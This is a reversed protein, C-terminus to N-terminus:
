DVLKAHGFMEPNMYCTGTDDAWSMTGAREGSASADNIQLELGIETGVEPTIDTWKMAAEVIYGDDTVVAKATINEELCKEGNFSLKNNFSIRYQKDDAEYAGGRAHNEDIFVEVSDQQYDDASDDNLVADKVPM